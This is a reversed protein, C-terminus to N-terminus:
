REREIDLKVTVNHDVMQFAGDPPLSNLPLALLLQSSFLDRRYVQLKSTHTPGLAIRVAEDWAPSADNSITKSRYLEQKDQSVVFYSSPPGDGLLLRHVPPLGAASVVRLQAFGDFHDLRDQWYISRDKAKAQLLATAASALVANWTALAQSIKLDQRLELGEADALKAGESRWLALRARAAPAHGSGPFRALYNEFAQIRQEPTGGQSGDLQLAVGWAREASRKAEGTV